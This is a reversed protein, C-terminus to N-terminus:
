SMGEAALRELVDSSTPLQFGTAFNKQLTAAVV